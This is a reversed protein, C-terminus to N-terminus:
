ARAHHATAARRVAELEGGGVIAARGDTVGAARAAIGMAM